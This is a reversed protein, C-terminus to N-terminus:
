EFIIEIKDGDQMTYNEFDFNQEGNVLMRLQGEQGSCFEFICDSSFHKDWIKFFEGLRVDRLYPFELHLTGTEDHTHIPRMCTASIGIDAPITYSEGKIKISLQPHIHMDIRTHQVCMELDDRPNEAVRSVLYWGGSFTIGGAILSLAAIKVAKKIKRKQRERERAEIKQHQKLKYEEKSM